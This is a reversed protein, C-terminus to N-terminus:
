ETFNRLMFHCSKVSTEPCGILGINLLCDKQIRPGQLHFRYNTGFRRYPTVVKCQTIKSADVYDGCADLLNRMLTQRELQRRADTRSGRTPIGQVKINPIKIFYTLSNWMRNFESLFISVKCSSGLM